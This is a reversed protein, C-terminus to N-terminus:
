KGAGDGSGDGGAEDLSGGGSLYVFARDVLDEIPFPKIFYEQACVKLTRHQNCADENAVTSLMFLPIDRVEPNRKITKCVRFGSVTPLDIALLILSPHEETVVDLAQNGETMLRVQLGEREFLEALPKSYSEDNEIILVSQSM